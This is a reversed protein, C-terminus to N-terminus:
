IIRVLLTAAMLGFIIGSLFCMLCLILRKRLEHETFPYTEVKSGCAPPAYDNTDWKLGCPECEMMDSYQIAKCTKM